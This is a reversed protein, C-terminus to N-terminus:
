DHILGDLIVWFAIFKFGKNSLFELNLRLIEFDWWYIKVMFKILFCGFDVM